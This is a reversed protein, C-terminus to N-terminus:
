RRLKGLTIGAREMTDLLERGEPTDLVSKVQRRPGKTNLHVLKAQTFLDNVLRADKVVEVVDVEARAFTVNPDHKTDLGRYANVQGFCHVKGASVDLRIVIFRDGTARVTAVRVSRAM